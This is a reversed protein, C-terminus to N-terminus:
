RWEVVTMILIWAAGALGMVADPLRAKFHRMLYFSGHYGRCRMAALTRDSRDLSRVLLLGVLGALSRTTHRDLRARFARARLARHVRQYEEHMGEAHRVTFLFLHALRTPVRLHALAHGLTVHDITSVLCSVILLIANSKVMILGALVLGEGSWALGGLTFVAHGPVAPPVFLLMFVLFLNLGLLRHCLPRAPLRATLALVGGLGLGAWAVAPHSSVAIQAGVLVGLALRIRPDLDHIWTRARLFHLCGM